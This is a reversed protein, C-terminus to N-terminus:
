DARMRFDKRDTIPLRQGLHLLCWQEIHYCQDPMSARATFIRVEVGKSLWDKVREVMLPVPPGLDFTGNYFSLTGDFDVGIWGKM